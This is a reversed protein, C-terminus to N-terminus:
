SKPVVLNDNLDIQINEDSKSRKENVRFRKFIKLLPAEFFLYFVNALLFVFVYTLVFERVMESM